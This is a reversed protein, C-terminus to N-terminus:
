SATAEAIKSFNGHRSTGHLPEVRFFSITKNLGVLAGGVDEHV